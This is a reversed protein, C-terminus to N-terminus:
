RTGTPPCVQGDLTQGLARVTAGPDASKAIATGILVADAGARAARAVDETSVLSSQSITFVDEPVMAILEETHSVTGADLELATIDRNNIAVVAAGLEIARELQEVNHVGVVVDMGLAEARDKMARALGHDSITSLTLQVADFGTQHSQDMQAVSTFFEKRMFPVDSQARIRRATEISGGFHKADTPTALANVGARHLERVYSELRDESILEGDRPSRCKVDVMIAPRGNRRGAALVRCLSRWEM